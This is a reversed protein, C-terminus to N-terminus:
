LRLFIKLIPPHPPPLTLSAFKFVHPNAFCVCMYSRMCACAALHEYVWVHICAFVCVCTHMWAYAHMWACAYARM